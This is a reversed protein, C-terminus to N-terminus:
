TKQRKQLLYQAGLGASVSLGILLLAAPLVIIIKFIELGNASAPGSPQYMVAFSKVTLYAFYIGAIGTAITVGILVISSLLQLLRRVQPSM